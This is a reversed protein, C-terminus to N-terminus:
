ETALSKVLKAKCFDTGTLVGTENGKFQAQLNKALTTSLGPETLGRGILLNGNTSMGGLLSATHACRFRVRSGEPEPVPEAGLFRIGHYIDTAMQGFAKEPDAPKAWALMVSLELMGQLAVVYRQDRELLGAELMDVFYTDGAVTLRRYGLREYYHLAQTILSYDLHPSLNIVM